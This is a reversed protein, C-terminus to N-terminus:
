EGPPGARLLVVAATQDTLRRSESRVVGPVWVIEGGMEVVPYGGRAQRPVKRDVFLHSLKRSGGLGLPRVRDGRRPCRVRVGAPPALFAALSVSLAIMTADHHRRPRALEDMKITM